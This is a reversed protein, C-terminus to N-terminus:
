EWIDLLLLLRIALLRVLICNILAHAAVLVDVNEALKLVQETGKLLLFDDHIVLKDSILSDDDSAM